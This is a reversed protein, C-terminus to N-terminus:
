LDQQRRKRPQIGGPFDILKQGLANGDGDGDGDAETRGKENLDLTWGHDAALDQRPHTHKM